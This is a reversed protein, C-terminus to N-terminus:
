HKVHVTTETIGSNTSFENSWKILQQWVDNVTGSVLASAEQERWSAFDAIVVNANIEKATHKTIYKIPGSRLMLRDTTLTLSQGLEELVSNGIDEQMQVYYAIEPVHYAVVPIKPTVYLVSLQGGKALVEKAARLLSAHNRTYPTLVLLAHNTINAM